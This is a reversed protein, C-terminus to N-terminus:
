EDNTMAGPRPYNATLMAPRFVLWGWGIMLSLGGLPTIAGLWRMNTVALIYLTGSFLITGLVFCWWPGAARSIRSALVLMVVAHVFHYFVATEWIDATAHRTLVDKLGHAGFAGLGVAVLGFVAAVRTATTGNMSKM